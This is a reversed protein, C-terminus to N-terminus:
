VIFLCKNYAFCSFATFFCRWFMALYRLGYRGNREQIAKIHNKRTAQKMFQISQKCSGEFVKMRSQKPSKTRSKMLKREWTYTKQQLIKKVFASISSNPLINSMTAFKKGQCVIIHEKQSHETPLDTFSMEYRKINSIFKM